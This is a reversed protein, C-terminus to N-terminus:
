WALGEESFFFIVDCVMTSAIWGFGLNSERNPRKQCGVRANVPDYNGISNEERGEPVRTCISAKVSTCEELCLRYSM